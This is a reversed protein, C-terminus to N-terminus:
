LKFKETHIRKKPVNLGALAEEVKQMMVPPGCLWIDRETIDNVESTLIDASVYGHHAAKRKEDSLVHVVKLGQKELKKFEDAFVADKMTRTAYILIDDGRVDDRLMSRLPTVGIGGAIFLRQRGTAVKQTFLGYPGSILAPAGPRLQDLKKTFDGVAKASLQLYPDKPSSSITFPHHMGRVDKQIFQWLNFQGAQYHFKDLNKGTVYVSTVGSNEKVVKEVRFRHKYELYLPMLWRRWLVLTFAVVYLGYWYARLWDNGMLNQGNSVQHFLALLVAAYVLLHVLYWLEYKLRRRVIVISTVIVASLLFVSVSAFTVYALDQLAFYQEIFGNGTLSSYGLVIFLVHTILFGYGFLGTVHHIRALRDLGFHKEILKTGSILILQYLFFFGALLGSLAGIAILAAGGGVQLQQTSKSLWVLFIGIIQLFYLAYFLQRRRALKM